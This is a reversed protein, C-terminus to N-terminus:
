VNALLVDGKQFKYIFDASPPMIVGFCLVDCNFIIVGLAKNTLRKPEDFSLINPM